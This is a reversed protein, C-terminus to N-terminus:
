HNDIQSIKTNNDFPLKLNKSPMKQQKRLSVKYLNERCAEYYRVLGKKRENTSITIRGFLKFTWLVLVM